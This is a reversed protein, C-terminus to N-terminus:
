SSRNNAEFRDAIAIRSRASPASQDPDPGGIWRHAGFQLNPADLSIGRWGLIEATM